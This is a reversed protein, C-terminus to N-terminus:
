LKYMEFSARLNALAHCQGNPGTLAPTNREPPAAFRLKTEAAADGGIYLSWLCSRTGPAPPPAELAQWGRTEPPRLSSVCGHGSLDKNDIPNPPGAPKRRAM